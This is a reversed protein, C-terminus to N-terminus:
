RIKGERLIEKRKGRREILATIRETDKRGRSAEASGSQEILNELREIM